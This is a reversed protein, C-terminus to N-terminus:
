KSGQTSGWGSVFCTHYEIPVVKPLCIANVDRSFIMKTKTKVIAIDNHFHKRVYHEHVIINKIEYHKMSPMSHQLLGVSIFYDKPSTNFVKVTTENLDEEFCHAASLITDENIISGGCLFYQSPKRKYMAVQWPIPQLADQGNIVRKVGQM